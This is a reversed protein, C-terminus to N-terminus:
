KTVAVFNSMQRLLPINAAAWPCGWQVVAVAAAFILILLLLIRVPKVGPQLRMLGGYISATPRKVEGDRIARRLPWRWLLAAMVFLVLYVILAAVLVPVLSPLKSAFSQKENNIFQVAGGPGQQKTLEAPVGDSVKAWYKLKGYSIWRHSAPASYKPECTTLTILRETPKTGPSDPDPAVVGVDDPSVITYRTYTYVYWYDKTRLVIPDGVQLKDVDGLPQGYGARHGAAAFNGLAGPMQTYTYHGIGHANLQPMDTGEVINRQWQDGFRPIYIQAILDGTNAKEPQVPPTGNQPSAISVGKASNASKSPDSWSVSQRQEVQTHESQVGTWWMQWVIYLACIGAMTFLLEAVIGLVTWM